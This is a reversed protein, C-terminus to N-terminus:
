PATCGAIGGVFGASAPGLTGAITGGVIDAVLGVAAAGAATACVTAAGTGAGGARTGGAGEALGDGGCVDGAGATRARGLCVEAVVADGVTLGGACGGLVPGNEVLVAVGLSDVALGTAFSDATVFGGDAGQLEPGPKAPVGSAVLGALVDAAVAAFTWDSGRPRAAYLLHSVLM